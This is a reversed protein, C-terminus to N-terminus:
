TPCAAAAYRRRGDRQGPRRELAHHLEARVEHRHGLRHQQPRHRRRRHGPRRDDRDMGSRRGHRRRQLHRPQRQVRGPHVLGAHEHHHASSTGAPDPDHRPRQGPRDPGPKQACSRGHEHRRDHVDAAHRVRGPERERDEHRHDPEGSRRARLRRRLRRGARGARRGSVLQVLGRRFPGSGLANSLGLMVREGKMCGPVWLQSGTRVGVRIGLVFATSNDKKFAVRSRSPRWTLARISPDENPGARRAAGRPAGLARPLGRLM